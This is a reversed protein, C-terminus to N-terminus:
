WQMEPGGVHRRLLARLRRDLEEDLAAVGGALDVELLPEPHVVRERRPEALEGARPADDEADVRRDGAEHAVGLAALLQVHRDPHEVVRGPDRLRGARLEDDEMGAKQEPARALLRDVGDDLLEPSSRFPEFPLIPRNREPDLHHAPHALEPEASSTTSIERRRPQTRGTSSKACM